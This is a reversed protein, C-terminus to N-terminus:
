SKKGGAVTEKRGAWKENDYLYGDLPHLFSFEERAGAYVEGDM